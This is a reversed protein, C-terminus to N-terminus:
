KSKIIKDLSFMKRLFDLFNTPEKKPNVKDIIPKVLKEREKFYEVHSKKYDWKEDFEKLEKSM